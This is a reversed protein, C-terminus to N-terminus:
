FLTVSYTIGNVTNGLNNRSLNGENYNSMYKVNNCKKDNTFVNYGVNYHQNYNDNTKNINNFSKNIGNIINNKQENTGNNFDNFAKEMQLKNLRLQEMKESYTLEKNQM